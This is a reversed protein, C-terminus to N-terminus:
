YAAGANLSLASAIYHEDALDSQLQHEGMRAEKVPAVSTSHPRPMRRLPSVVVRDGSSTIGACSMEGALWLLVSPVRYTM